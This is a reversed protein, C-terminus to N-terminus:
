GPCVGEVLLGVAFLALLGLAMYKTAKPRYPEIGEWDQSTDDDPRPRVIRPM